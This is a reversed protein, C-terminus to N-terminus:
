VAFQNGSKEVITNHMQNYVFQKLDEYTPFDAIKVPKLYHIEITGPRMWFSNPPLITKANIICFPVIEAGTEAAIKFAGDKFPMLPANTRNRTGEAFVLVGVGDEINQRMREKTLKRSEENSRDVMISAMKFVLGVIPMNVLERKAIPKYINDLTSGFAMIDMFSGHNGVYLYAKGREVNEDFGYCKIRVFILLNYLKAWTRYLPIIYYVARKRLTYTFLLALPFIVLSTVVVFYLFAWLSYPFQIIRILIKKL